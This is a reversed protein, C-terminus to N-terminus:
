GRPAAHWSVGAGQCGRARTCPPAAADVARRQGRGCAASRAGLTPVTHPCAGRWGATAAAPPAASSTVCAGRERCVECVECVECVARVKM